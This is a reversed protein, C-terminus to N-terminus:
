FSDTRICDLINFKRYKKYKETLFLKNKYSIRTSMKQRRSKASSSLYPIVFNQVETNRDLIIQFILM